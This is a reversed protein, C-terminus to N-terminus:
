TYTWVTGRPVPLVAGTGVSHVAMWGEGRTKSRADCPGSGLHVGGVARQADHEDLMTAVIFGHDPLPDSVQLSGVADKDLTIYTADYSKSPFLNSVSPFVAQLVAFIIGGCVIM